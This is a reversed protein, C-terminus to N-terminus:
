VSEIVNRNNIHEAAEYNCLMDFTYKQPRIIQM